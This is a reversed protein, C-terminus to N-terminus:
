YGRAEYPERLARSEEGPRVAERYPEGKKLIWWAACSLRRAVAVVAKGHGKKERLKRYVQAVKLYSWRRHHISVVNAAEVFAWKLILCAAKRTKGHYTRGGSSYVRPVLGCYASFHGASPFREVDGMEYLIVASLIKGVGPITKLLRMGEEESLLEWLRCELEEIHCQLQDLYRFHLEQVRRTEPPLLELLEMAEERGRVGFLDSVGSVEIGYKSFTAHIRNKVSTRTCSLVMRCRLLERVDRVDRPPIWVVPLTGMRLLKALGVSDLKDTKDIHGMMVKARGAHALYPIHGCEEILDIFWYWSRSTEVAIPSGPPLSSLYERLQDGEHSIRVEEVVRGEEDMVAFNSYRKHKDCGIFYTGDKKM